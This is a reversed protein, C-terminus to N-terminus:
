NNADTALNTSHSADGGKGITKKTSKQTCDDAGAMRKTLGDLQRWVIKNLVRDPASWAPFMRKPKHSYRRSKAKLEKSALPLAGYQVLALAALEAEAYKAWGSKRKRFTFHTAALTTFDFAKWGELTVPFDPIDQDDVDLDVLTGEISTKAHAAYASLDAQEIHRIDKGAGFHAQAHELRTRYTKRTTAKRQADLFEAMADSFPKGVGITLVGGKSKIAVDLEREHQRRRRQGESIEAALEAQLEEIKDWHRAKEKAVAVTIDFGSWDIAPSDKDDDPMPPSRLERFIAGLTIRFTQAADAAQRVSSTNLSRYIEKQGLVHRIDDPVALRFYLTGHRNRHLYAPLRYGM